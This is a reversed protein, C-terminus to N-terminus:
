GADDNNVRGIKPVELPKGATAEADCQKAWAVVQRNRESKLQAFTKQQQRGNKAFSIYEPKLGQYENAECFEAVWTLHDPGDFHKFLKSTSRKSRVPKRIRRRMAAWDDLAKRVEPTDWGDPLNWDEDESTFKMSRDETKLRGKSSKQELLNRAKAVGGKRGTKQRMERLNQAKQYVSELRANRLYGDDGLEFKCSIEDWISAFQSAFTYCLKALKEQDNPLRRMAWQHALLRTYAGVAENSM